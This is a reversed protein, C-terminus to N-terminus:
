QKFQTVYGTLSLTSKIMTACDDARQKSSFKQSIIRYYGNYEVISLVLDDKNVDFAILSKQANTLNNFAGLQVIWSPSTEVKQISPSAAANDEEQVTTITSTIPKVSKSSTEQPTYSNSSQGFNFVINLYISHNTDLSQNNFHSYQGLEVAIQDTLQYNAALLLYPSMAQKKVLTENSSTSIFGLGTGAKILLENNYQKIFNAGISLQSFDGIINGSNEIIKIDNSILYRSEFEVSESFKWQYSLHYGPSSDQDMHYNLGASFKHLENASVNISSLLIFTSYIFLKKM